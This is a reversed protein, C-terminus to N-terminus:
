SFFILKISYLHFKLRTLLSPNSIEIALRINQSNRRFFNLRAIIGNVSAIAEYFSWINKKYLINILERDSKDYDYALKLTRFRYKYIDEIKKHTQSVKSSIQNEQGNGGRITALVENVYILNPNCFFMRIQFENDQFRRFSEDFLKKGKLFRRSWMCANLQIELFDSAYKKFLSHKEPVFSNLKSERFRTLDFNAYRYLSVVLDTDQSIGAVKQELFEPHMYDDSDFWNVYDGNSCEFGYNRAANGGPLRNEPRKLFIFKSNGGIYGLIIEESGDNSGDDVIVCEWNSYTQNNVSEITKIILGERNYVPIIISILPSFM